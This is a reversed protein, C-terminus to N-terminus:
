SSGIENRALEKRKKLVELIAEKKVNFWEKLKLDDCIIDEPIDIDLTLLNNFKVEELILDFRKQLFEDLFENSENVPIKIRYSDLSKNIYNSLVESLLKNSNKALVDFTTKARGKINIVVSNPDELLGLGKDILNKFIVSYNIGLVSSLNKLREFRCENLALKISKTKTKTKAM